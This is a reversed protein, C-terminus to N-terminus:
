ILMAFRGGGVGIGAAVGVVVVGDVVGVGVGVGVGLEIAPANGSELKGGAFLRFDITSSAAEAALKCAAM